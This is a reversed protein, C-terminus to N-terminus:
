MRMAPCLQPTAAAPRRDAPPPTRSRRRGARCKLHRRLRGEDFSPSTLAECAQLIIGVAETVALPGDRRLMQGLDIGALYEMVLYPAGNDLTGFDLVKAVHETSLAVVARAERLFREVANEDRGAEARM